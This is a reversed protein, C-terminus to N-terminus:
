PTPTPTLFLDFFLVFLGSAVATTTLMAILGSRLWIKTTIPNDTRESVTITVVNAASGTPFGNGGFGAGFALAWWLPSANIGLQGLRQIVPVLAITFPINGIIASAIAGVWLFVLAALLINEQALGIVSEGIAELIGAAELGGVAIFLSAFFLLVSWEVTELIKDIHPRIWILAAAAGALAVFAPSLHLANHLFFTFIVIAFVILIRRLTAPDHLAEGAHMGMLADIHQPRVALEKRFIFRLTLLVVFWAALAIPFTHILFDNFSFGAASGIIINPPDGVLTGVGGTNSLLANAILLPIPNIGLAQAIWITIPAILIVTTVNDLFLSLMTTVTGLTVMLLWPSGRSWRGAVIAAYQFFGTQELLGVLMMMGLLLGITNFDVAELAQKETYFGMANGAGVMVVAGVAGVITRHIKDSLIGVFTAIFIVIAVIQIPTM